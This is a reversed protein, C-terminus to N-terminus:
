SLWIVHEMNGTRSLALLLSDGCDPSRGLIKKVKKKPEVTVDGNSNPPGLAAAALDVRTDEYEPGICLQGERFLLAAVCHLEARRNAYTEGKTTGAWDGKAGEGFNVGDVPYGQERLRSYVGAGIGNSDIHVNEWPVKRDRAIQVIRGTTAMLDLGTWREQHTVTRDTLETAVNADSDDGDGAIDVGLHKGDKATPTKAAAQEILTLSMLSLQANLPFEGEVRGIWRPDDTGWARRREEILTRTIAGPIVERGEVVNPHELCSLHVKHFDASRFFEFYKGRAWLPNGSVVLRAGEATLLSDYAEWLEADDLGQAEDILVYVRQGRRGQAASINRVSVVAADWQDGMVWRDVGMDGGLPMGRAKAAAYAKRVEQWLGGQVNEYTPGGCIVRCGKNRTLLECVISGLDFTKGTGNGSRVHVRRHTEIALRMAEQAHWRRRGLVVRSFALPDAALVRRAESPKIAALAVM